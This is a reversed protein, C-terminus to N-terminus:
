EAGCTCKQFVFRTKHFHNAPCCPAHHLNDVIQIKKLYNLIWKTKFHPQIDINRLWVTIKWLKLKIMLKIFKRQQNTVM